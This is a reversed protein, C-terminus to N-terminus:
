VNFGQENLKLIGLLLTESFGNGPFIITKLRPLQFLWEPVRDLYNHSLNLEQLHKFPLKPIDLLGKGALNLKILNGTEDFTCDEMSAQVMELYYWYGLNDKYNAIEQNCSNHYEQNKETVDILINRCYNCFIQEDTTGLTDHNAM